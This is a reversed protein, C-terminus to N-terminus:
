QGAHAAPGPHPHDPSCPTTTSASPTSSAPLPHDPRHRAPDGGKSRAGGSQRLAALIEAREVQEIRRSRGRQRALGVASRARDDLGHHRPTPDSRDRGAAGPRDVHPRGAPEGAARAAVGRVRDTRTRPPDRHGPPPTDPPPHTTWHLAGHGKYTHHRRCLAGLNDATTPGTPFPTRHDIDCHEAPVMCGPAQCIGDRFRLAIRPHRPLVTRRVRPVPRRPHRPRHDHPALLHQGRRTIETVWHAPVGWRRDTSEAFGEVTGALAEADIMVAINADLASEASKSDTCWAVLLDAERQAVTRTDDDAVDRRAERHLRNAIAAAEHSPLYANLWAM